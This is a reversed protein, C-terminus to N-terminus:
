NTQLNTQLPDALADCATKLEDLTYELACGYSLDVNFKLIPDGMESLNDISGQICRGFSDGGRLRFGDESVSVAKSADAKGILLPLGDIYGPNGSKGGVLMGSSGQKQFKISFRQQVSVMAKGDLDEVGEIPEDQLM